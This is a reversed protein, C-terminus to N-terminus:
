YEWALVRSSIHCDYQLTKMCEGPLDTLPPVGSKALTRTLHCLPLGVVTAYCGSLSTVPHFGPHQIAYAGAKDLPDGTAIYDEMEQDSYNRMPVDTICIDTWFQDDKTNIIAIATYVQHIKNRLRILMNRAESSDIPKGLIMEGDVVITDAGIVVCEKGIQSAIQRAKTEAMRLVYQRPPEQSWPREDIEAPLVQFTWGGLALMEKRRPSNSALVLAPNYGM